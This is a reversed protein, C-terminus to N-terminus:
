SEAARDSVSVTRWVCTSVAVASLVPEPERHREREPRRDGDPDARRGPVDDAPHRDVPALLRQARCGAPSV